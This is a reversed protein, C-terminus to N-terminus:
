PQGNTGEDDLALVLAGAAVHHREDLGRKVLERLLREPGPAADRRLGLEGNTRRKAAPELATVEGTM